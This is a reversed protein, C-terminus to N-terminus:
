HPLFAATWLYRDCEQPLDPTRKSRDKNAKQHPSHSIEFTPILLDDKQEPQKMWVM